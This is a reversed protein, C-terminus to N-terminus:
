ATEEPTNELLSTALESMQARIADWNYNQEVLKRAHATLDARQEKNHLLTLCARAFAEPSDGILLHEGDQVNLGHCGISTSVVPTGIAFAELIKLRTGGGLRLPVVSVTSEQYFPDVEPVDPSVLIHKGDHLCTVADPMDRGVVLVRVDPFERQILPLINRIFNQLGDVNPWHGYTGLCLLTRGDSSDSFPGRGVDTGNPIVCLESGNGLRKRDPDSAVLIRDFRKLMRRQYRELIAIDIRAALRARWGRPPSLRYWDRKLDTEIDDLDLIMRQNRNKRSLGSHVHIAMDLREVVILRCAPFLEEVVTSVKRSFKVRSQLPVLQRTAKLEKCLKLLSSGEPKDRWDMLVPHIAACYPALSPIGALEEDVDYGFVLHVPAAKACAELLNRQRIRVGIDPPHPIQRCIFLIV